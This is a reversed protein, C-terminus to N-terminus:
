NGGSGLRGMEEEVIRDELKIFLPLPQLLKQGPLPM